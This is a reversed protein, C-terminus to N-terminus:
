IIDYFFLTEAFLLVLLFHLFNSLDFYVTTYHVQKGSLSPHNLIFFNGEILATKPAIITIHIICSTEPLSSFNVISDRSLVRVQRKDM